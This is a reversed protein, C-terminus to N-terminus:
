QEVTVSINIQLNLYLTTKPILRNVHFLYAECCLKGPKWLRIGADEQLWVIGNSHTQNKYEITHCM